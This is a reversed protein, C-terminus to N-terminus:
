KSLVTCPKVDTADTLRQCFFVPTTSTAHIQDWMDKTVRKDFTDVMSSWEQANLTRPTLKCFDLDIGPIKCSNIWYANRSGSPLFYWTGIKTHRQIVTGGLRDEKANSPVYGPLCLCDDPRTPGANTFAEKKMHPAVPTEMFSVCQLLLLFFVVLLAAIIVSRQPGLM